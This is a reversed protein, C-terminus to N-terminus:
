CVHNVCHLVGMVCYGKQKSELSERDLAHVPEGRDFVIEVSRQNFAPHHFAHSMCVDVCIAEVPKTAGSLKKYDALDVTATTGILDSRHKGLCNLLSTVFHDKRSITGIRSNGETALCIM